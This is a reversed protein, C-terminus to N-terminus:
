PVNLRSNSAPSLLAYQHGGAQRWASGRAPFLLPWRTGRPTLLVLFPFSFERQQSVSEIVYVGVGESLAERLISANSGPRLSFHYCFSVPLLCTLQLPPSPSSPSFSQLGSWSWGDGALDSFCTSAVKLFFFRQAGPAGEFLKANQGSLNRIAFSWCSSACSSVRALGLQSPRVM